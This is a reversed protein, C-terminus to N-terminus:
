PEVDRIIRFGVDAKARDPKMKNRKAVICNKGLISFSGGRRVRHTGEKPGTPDTQPTMEYPAYWDAVWESVNGQMDSLGWKNPAFTGVPAPVDFHDGSGECNGYKSLEEADNGFSYLTTSGARGAYEWQAETPLRFTAKPAWSKLAQLFDQVRDWSVLEVPQEWWKKYKSPNEEMVRWWQLITIETDSMCFPRTITVQHPKADGMGEGHGGMMFIGPEIRKFVVDLDKIPPCGESSGISKRPPGVFHTFDLASLDPATPRRYFFYGGVSLTVLLLAGGAAAIRHPIRPRKEPVEFIRGQPGRLYLVPNVWDLPGKAHLALRAEYVAHDVTDGSALAKYFEKSFTLAAEDTVRFQMAVVASTGNRLLTQAVGGFPDTKSARGGECANLVVLAPPPQRGLVRALDVGTVPDSEGDPKEFQLFAQELSQDFGGHGIFHLVHIPTELDQRLTALSASELRSLKVHGSRELGELSKKLERFEAESDLDGSGGPQAIVVLIRLPLKVQLPPVIESFGPSRAISIDSSFILFDHGPERLYEWPWEWLEPSELILRLRLGHGAHRARERAGVWLKWVSGSLIAEFLREGLDEVKSRVTKKSPDLDRSGSGRFVRLKEIEGEEFPNAFPRETGAEAPGSPTAVYGAPDKRIRLVFDEYDKKEV